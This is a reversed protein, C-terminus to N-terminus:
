ENQPVIVFEKLMHYFRAGHGESAELFYQQKIVFTGGETNDVLYYNVVKDNWKSGGDIAHLYIAELPESVEGMNDVKTFEGKLQDEIERALEDPTKDKIQSIEMYVEPANEAKIKPSIRDKDEQKDMTYREEDFYIIYGKGTNQLIGKNEEPTGEIEERIIKEPAFFDMIKAIAAQGPATATFFTVLLAAAVSTSGILGLMRNKRRVAMRSGRRKNTDQIQAEIRNWVQEKQGVSKNTKQILSEKIKEDFKRDM